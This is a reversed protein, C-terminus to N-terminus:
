ADVLSGQVKKLTNVHPQNPLDIQQQIGAGHKKRQNYLDAESLLKDIQADLIDVLPYNYGEPERKLPISPTKIKVVEGWSTTKTGFIQVGDSAHKGQILIATVDLGGFREKEEDSDAIFDNFHVSQLFNGNCDTPTQLECAILLHPKLKDMAREFDSHRPLDSRKINKDNIPENSDRPQQSEDFGIFTEDKKFVIHKIKVSM